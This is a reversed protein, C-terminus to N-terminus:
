CCPLGLQCQANETAGKDNNTDIRTFESGHGKAGNQRGVHKVTTKVGANGLFEVDVRGIYAPDGTAFTSRRLNLSSELLFKSSDLPNGRTTLLM